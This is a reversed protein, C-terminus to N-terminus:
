GRLESGVGSRDGYVPLAFQTRTSGSGRVLGPSVYPVGGHASELATLLEGIEADKSVYAGAGHQIARRISREDALHTVIAIPLEPFERHLLEMAAIENMGPLVPDLLVLDPKRRRIDEIAEHLDGRSGVVEFRGHRALWSRVAARQMSQNDILYVRIPSPASSPWKM